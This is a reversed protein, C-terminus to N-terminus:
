NLLLGERGGWVVSVWYRDTQPPLLLPGLELPPQPRPTLALLGLYPIIAVAQLPWWPEGQGLRPWLAQRREQGRAEQERDPSQGLGLSGQCYPLASVTTEPRGGQGNKGCVVESIGTLCQSPTRSVAQTDLGVRM